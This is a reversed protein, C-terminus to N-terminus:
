SQQIDKELIAIASERLTLETQANKITEKLREYERKMSCLVIKRASQEDDYSYDDTLEKSKDIFSENAQKQREIYQHLLFYKSPRRGSGPEVQVKDTMELIEAMRNKVFSYGFGTNDQIDEYTVGDVKGSSEQSSLASLVYTFIRQSSADAGDLAAQQQLDVSLSPSAEVEVADAVFVDNNTGNDGLTEHSYTVHASHDNFM